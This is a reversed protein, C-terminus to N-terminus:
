NAALKSIEARLVEKAKELQPDRKAKIDEETLKVEIDPKIGVKEITKGSPTLWQAVTIKLESGDSLSRLEQVSGKGYTPAGVIKVDRHDKLAGALIESASASGKNVLIVVPLDKLAANGNAFFKRNQSEDRFHEM